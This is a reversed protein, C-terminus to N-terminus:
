VLLGRGGRDASAACSCWAAADGLRVTLGPVAPSAPAPVPGAGGCTSYLLSLSVPPAPRSGRPCRSPRWTAVTPPPHVARLPGWPGCAWSSAWGPGAPAVSPALPLVRSGCPGGALGQGLDGPVWSGPCGSPGLPVDRVCTVLYVHGCFLRLPGAARGPCLHGPVRSGLLGSLGLPLDRACTVVYVHGCSRRFPGGDLGQYTVLFVYGLSLRLPGVALRHCLCGPVRSGPAQSFRALWPRSSAVGSRVRRVLGGPVSGLVTGSSKVSQKM